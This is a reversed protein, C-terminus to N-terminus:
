SAGIRWMNWDELLTRIPGKVPKKKDERKMAEMKAKIVKLNDPHYLPRVGATILPDGNEDRLSSLYEEVKAWIPNGDSLLSAHRKAREHHKLAAQRSKAKLEQKLKQQMIERSDEDPPSWHTPNEDPHEKMWDSRLENSYNSDDYCPNVHAFAPIPSQLDYYKGNPAMVLELGDYCAVLMMGVALLAGSM